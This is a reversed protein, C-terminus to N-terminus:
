GSMTRVNELCKRVMEPCKESMKRVNDSCKGSMKQVKQIEESKLSPRLNRVFFGLSNYTQPDGKKVSSKKVSQHPTYISM